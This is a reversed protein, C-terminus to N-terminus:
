HSRKERMERDLRKFGVILEDHEHGTLRSRNVKGEKQNSLAM